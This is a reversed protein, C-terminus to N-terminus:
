KGNHSPPQAKEFVFHFTTGKGERSQVDITAKHAELINLTASLGFGFGHTKSSFGPEFIHSINEESIGQGNDAISVQYHHLDEFLSVQLRGEQEAMAEVANIIINL